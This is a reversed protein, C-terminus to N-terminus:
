AGGLPLNLRAVALRGSSRGVRFRHASNWDLCVPPKCQMDWGTALALAARIVGKHTIAVRPVGRAGVDCLWDRLRVQVDRPSEGGPPRFDLGRRESAHMEEGLAARLGQLTRGEWDGWDMETLRPELEIDVAGLARATQVARALPSVSWTFGDVSPLTWAAVQARGTDDLSIDTRGQIRGDANWGTRGHRIMLLAVADRNV